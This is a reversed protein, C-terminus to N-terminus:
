LWGALRVCAGAQATGAQMSMGLPMGRSALLMAMPDVMIDRAHEAEAAKLVQLREAEDRGAQGDEPGGGARSSSRSSSHLGRCYSATEALSSATAASSTRFLEQMCM